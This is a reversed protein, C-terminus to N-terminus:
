LFTEGIPKIILDHIQVDPPTQLCYILADAVDNPRLAATHPPVDVDKAISTTTIGPSISTIKVKTKQDWFEQRYMETLATIAFKTPPYLSMVNNAMLPVKHGCVCNMLFVHGDIGNAKMSRFAERTCYIAALVNTELMKVMDESNNETLLKTKTMMGVNNVMVSVPGFNKEIEIFAAKIEFEERVNCKICHMRKVLDPSLEALQAQYGEINMDLNVTVMKNNALYKAIAGGIGSSAGTIVAVQNEWREM